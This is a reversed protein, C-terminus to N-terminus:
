VNYYMIILFFHILRFKLLSLRLHQVLKITDRLKSQKNFNLELQHLVLMNILNNNYILHLKEEELAQMLHIVLYSLIHYPLLELLYFWVYLM